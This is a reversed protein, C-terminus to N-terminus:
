RNKPSGSQAIVAGNLPCVGGPVRNPTALLYAGPALVAVGLDKRLTPTPNRPVGVFLPEIKSQDGLLNFIRQM